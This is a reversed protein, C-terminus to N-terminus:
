LPPAGRSSRQLAVASASVRRMAEHFSLVQMEAALDINRVTVDPRVPLPRPALNLVAKIDSITLVAAVEQVCEASVAVMAIRIGQERVVRPLQELHQVPLGAITGGVREPNSDFVAVIRFNREGFGAYNALASGLTGCGVLAVPWTQSLGLFTAMDRLLGKVDYGVGPTGFAGLYSLDKRIQSAEMGTARALEQSSAMEVGQAAMAKLSEVYRPLRALAAPPVRRVKM